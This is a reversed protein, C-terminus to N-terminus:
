NNILKEKEEQYPVHKGTYLDWGRQIEPYLWVDWDSLCAKRTEPSQNCMNFLMVIMTFLRGLDNILQIMLNM